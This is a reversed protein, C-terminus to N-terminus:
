DELHDSIRLLLKGLHHWLTYEPYREQFDHHCGVGLAVDHHLVVIKSEKWPAQMQDQSYCFVDRASTAPEGCQDCVFVPFWNGNDDGTMVLVAYEDEM